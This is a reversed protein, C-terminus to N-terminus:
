DKKNGTEENGEEGNGEKEYRNIRGSKTRTGEGNDRNVRTGIGRIERREGEGREDENRRTGRRRKMMMKSTIEIKMFQQIGGRGGREEGEWRERRGEM